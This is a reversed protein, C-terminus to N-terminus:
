KYLLATTWYLFLAKAAEPVTLPGNRPDWKLLGSEIRQGYQYIAYHFIEYQLPKGVEPIPGMYQIQINIQTGNIVAPLDFDKEFSPRFGSGLEFKEIM